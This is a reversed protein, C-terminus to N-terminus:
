DGDAAEEYIKAGCRPCYNMNNEEPTGSALFWAEGCASCVYAKDPEGGGMDTPVWHGHRVPAVDAAPIANIDSESVCLCLDREVIRELIAGREIFEVMTYGM